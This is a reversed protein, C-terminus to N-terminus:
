KNKTNANKQEIFKINDTNEIIKPTSIASTTKTISINHISNSNENTNQKQISSISYIRRVSKEKSTKIGSSNCTGM